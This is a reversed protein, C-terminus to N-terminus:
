RYRRHKLRPWLRSPVSRAAFEETFYVTWEHRYFRYLDWVPNQLPNCFLEVEFGSNVPGQLLAM